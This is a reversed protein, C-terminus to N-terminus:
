ALWSTHQRGARECSDGPLNGIMLGWAERIGGIEMCTNNCGDLFGLDIDLMCEDTMNSHKFDRGQHASQRELPFFCGRYDAWQASRVSVLGDNPTEASRLFCHIRPKRSALAYSQCYPKHVDVNASVPTKDYHVAKAGLDSSAFVDSEYSQSLTRFTEYADPRDDGMWCARQDAAWSVGRIISNPLMAFGNEAMFSGGHPSCITTVSAISSACLPNEACRRSELGGQSFGILHVKSAGTEDRVEAIREALMEANASVPLCAATHSMYVANGAERLWAPIRGWCTENEDRMFIGHVLIIPADLKPIPHRARRMLFREEPFVFRNSNRM